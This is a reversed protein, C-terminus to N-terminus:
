RLLKRFGFNYVRERKEEVKIPISFYEQKIQLIKYGVRKFKRSCTLIHWSPPQNPFPVHWFDRPMGVLTTSHVDDRLPWSRKYFSLDHFIKKSSKKWKVDVQLHLYTLKMKWWHILDELMQQYVDIKENRKFFHKIPRTLEFRM